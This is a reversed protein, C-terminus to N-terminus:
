KVNETLWGQPLRPLKKLIQQQMTNCKSTEVYYNIFTRTMSSSLSVSKINLGTMSCSELRNWGDGTRDVVRRFDM